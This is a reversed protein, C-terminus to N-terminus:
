SIMDLRANQIHEQSITESGDSKANQVSLNCLQTLSRLKNVKTKSYHEFLLDITFQEWVDNFSVNECAAQIRKEIIKQISEKRTLSPIMMIPAFRDTIQNKFGDNNYQNNMVFIYSCGISELAPLSENFFRTASEASLKNGDDSRIKDTEDIMIIVHKMEAKEKLISVIQDLYIALDNVTPNGQIIVESQSKISASVDGRIGAILPIINYWARIGLKM